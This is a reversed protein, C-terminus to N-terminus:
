RSSISLNSFVFPFVMFYVLNFTVSSSIQSFKPIISLSFSVSSNFFFEWEFYCCSFSRCVGYKWLSFQISYYSSYYFKTVSVRKTVGKGASFCLWPNQPCLLEPPMHLYLTSSLVIFRIVGGWIKLIISTYYVFWLHAWKLPVIQHTKSFIYMWADEVVTLIFFKEIM